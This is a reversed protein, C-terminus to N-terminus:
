NFKFYCTPVSAYRSWATQDQDTKDAVPMVQSTANPNLADKISTALTMDHRDTVCM